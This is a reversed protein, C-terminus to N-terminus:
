YLLFVRPANFTIGKNQVAGTVDFNADIIKAVQLSIVFVALLHQGQFEGWDRRTFHDNQDSIAGKDVEQFSVLM